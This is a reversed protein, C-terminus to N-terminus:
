QGRGDAAQPELPHQQCWGSVPDRTAPTRTKCCSIWGTGALNVVLASPRASSTGGYCRAAAVPPCIGAAPTTLRCLSLPHELATHGLGAFTSPLLPVCWCPIFQQFALGPSCRCRKGSAPGQAQGAHCWWGHSCRQEDVSETDRLQVPEM